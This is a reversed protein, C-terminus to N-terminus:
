EIHVSEMVAQLQARLSAKTEESLVREKPYVDPAITHIDQEFLYCTSSRYTVYIESRVYHGVGADGGSVHLYRIGHITEDHGRDHDSSDKAIQECSAKDPAAQRSYSFQVGALNTNPYPRSGDGAGGYFGVAAVVGEAIPKLYFVMGHSLKWRSPYTFRVGHKPDNYTKSTNSTQPQIRSVVALSVVFYVLTRATM